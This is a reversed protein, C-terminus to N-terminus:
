GRSKLLNHLPSSTVELLRSYVKNQFTQMSMFFNQVEFVFFLFFSKYGAHWFCFFCSTLQSKNLNHTLSFIDEHLGVFTVEWKQFAIYSTVEWNSLSIWMSKDNLLSHVPGKVNKFNKKLAIQSEGAPNFDFFFKWMLAFNRWCFHKWVEWFTKLTLKLLIIRYAYHWIIKKHNM